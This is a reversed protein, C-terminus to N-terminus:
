WVFIELKLWCCLSPHPTYAWKHFCYSARRKSKNTFDWFLSFVKCLKYAQKFKKKQKIFIVINYLLIYSMFNIISDFCSRLMCCSPKLIFLLKRSWSWQFLTLQVVVHIHWKVNEAKVNLSTTLNHSSHLSFSFSREYTPAFHRLIKNSM